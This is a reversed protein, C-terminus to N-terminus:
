SFECLFKPKIQWTRPVIMENNQIYGTEKAKAFTSDYGKPCSGSFTSKPVYYNGMAVDNLFMFYKGEDSGGWASTAYQLSKTSQDSFYVGDGFARGCVFSASSPPVVFGVKLISLINSPKTGHWLEWINTLKSGQSDFAKDMHEINVVYVRVLKMKAAHYHLDQRTKKFLKEIRDFESKDDLLAMKVNFLKPEDTADVKKGDPAQASAIVAAYSADLGDLLTNQSQVASQSGMFAIPDFKRGVDQPILMLYEELTKVFQPDHLKNKQVYNGIDNLRLRAADINGKTVIGLPTRFTGATTDYKIKGGTAKYINHANVETFFAVLKETVPCSAIQKTALKKLETTSACAAKGSTKPADLTEIEKYCGGDYHSSPKTKEKVKKEMFSRGAGSFVKRQLGLQDTIKGWETEVDDNDYLKVGWYKNSNLGASCFVFKRHEIVNAM